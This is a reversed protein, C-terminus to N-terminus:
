EISAAIKILEDLEIDSAVNYYMGDKWFMIQKYDDGQEDGYVWAEIGNISIKKCRALLDEPKGTDQAQQIRIEKNDDGKYTIISLDFSGLSTSQTQGVLSTEKMNAYSYKPKKPKFKINKNVEDETKFDTLQSNFDSSSLTNKQSTSNSASALRINNSAFVSIGILTASIIILLIVTKYKLKNM